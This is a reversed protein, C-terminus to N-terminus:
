KLRQRRSSGFQGLTLFCILTETLTLLVLPVLTSELLMYVDAVCQGFGRLQATVMAVEM